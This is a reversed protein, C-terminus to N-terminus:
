SGRPRGYGPQRPSAAADVPPDRRPLEPPPSPHPPTAAAGCDVHGGALDAPREVTSPVAAPGDRESGASGDGADRGAAARGQAGSKIGTIELVWKPRGTARPEEQGDTAGGESILTNRSLPPLRQQGSRSAM